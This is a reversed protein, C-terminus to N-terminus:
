SDVKASREITAGEVEIKLGSDLLSSCYEGLLDRYDPCFRSLYPITERESDALPIPIWNLNRTNHRILFADNVGHWVIPIHERIWSFALLDPPDADGVFFRPQSDGSGSIFPLDDRIPLGPRGLTAIPQPLQGRDRIRSLAHYKTTYLIVGASTNDGACVSKHDTPVVCFESNEHAHFWSEIEAIGNPPM